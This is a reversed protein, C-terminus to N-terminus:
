HHVPSKMLNIIAVMTLTNSPITSTTLSTLPLLFASVARKTLAPSYVVTKSSKGIVILYKDVFDYGYKENIHSNLDTVISM